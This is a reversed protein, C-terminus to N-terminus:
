GHHLSELLLIGHYAHSPYCTWRLEFLGGDFYSENNM